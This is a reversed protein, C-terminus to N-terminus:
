SVNPHVVSDKRSYRAERWHYAIDKCFLSSLVKGFGWRLLELCQEEEIRGGGGSVSADGPMVDRGGGIPVRM